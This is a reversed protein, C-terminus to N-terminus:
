SLGGAKKLGGNKIDAPYFLVKIFDLFNNNKM